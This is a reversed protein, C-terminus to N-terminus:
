YAPCFSFSLSPFFLKIKFLKIKIDKHQIVSTGNDSKTHFLIKMTKLVVIASVPPQITHFLYFHTSIYTRILNSPSEITGSSDSLAVYTEDNKMNECSILFTM